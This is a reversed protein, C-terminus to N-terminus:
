PQGDKSSPAEILDLPAGVQDWDVYLRWGDKVRSVGRAAGGVAGIGLGLMLGEGPKELLIGALLGLIGGLAAGEAVGITGVVLYDRLRPESQPDFTVNVGLSQQLNAIAERLVQFARAGRVVLRGFEAAEEILALATAASSEVYQNKQTM